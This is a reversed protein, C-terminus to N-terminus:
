DSFGYKGFCALLEVDLVGGNDVAATGQHDTVEGDPNPDGGVMSIGCEEGAAVDDIIDFVSQWNPLLFDICVLRSSPDAVAHRVFRSWVVRLIWVM